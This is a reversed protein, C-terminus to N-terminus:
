ALERWQPDDFDYLHCASCDLHRPLRHRGTLPGRLDDLDDAVVVTRLM